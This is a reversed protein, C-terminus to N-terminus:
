SPDRKLNEIIEQGKEYDKVPIMLGEGVVYWHDFEVVRLPGHTHIIMGDSFKLKTVDRINKLLEVEDLRMEDEFTSNEWIVFVKDKRKRVVKGIYNGWSKTKGKGTSRVLDGVKYKM